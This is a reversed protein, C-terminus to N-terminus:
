PKSRGLPKSTVHERRRQRYETETEGVAASPEGWMCTPCRTGGAEPVHFTFWRPRAVRCKSCHVAAVIAAAAERRRVWPGVVTLLVLGIAMLSFGVVAM